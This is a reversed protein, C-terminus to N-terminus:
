SAPSTCWAMDNWAARCSMANCFTQLGVVACEGRWVVRVVCLTCTKGDHRDGYRSSAISYLRVTEPVEQGKSNIKTGQQSFPIRATRCAANGLICPQSQVPTGHCWAATCHYAALLATWKPPLCAAM